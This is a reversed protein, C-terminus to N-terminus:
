FTERVVRSGDERLVHSGDERLIFSDSSVTITLTTDRPSNSGDVHTERLAIDFTGASAASSGVVLNTGSIAVRTDAPNVAVTSGSSLNQIAGIVTAAAAGFAFSANALTLASLTVELLNTVNITFARSLPTDVGNDAQVTISFSAATDYDSATSGAQLNVGHTGAVKAKNSSTDTLTFDYTGTGNNVSLTGIATGEASGEVITLASLRIAPGTLGGLVAPSTLSLGLGLM